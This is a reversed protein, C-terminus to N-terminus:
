PKKVFGVNSWKVSDKRDRRVMVFTILFRDGACVISKTLMM